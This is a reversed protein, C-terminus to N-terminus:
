SSASAGDTKKRIVPNTLFMSNPIFVTDGEKTQVVTTRVSIKQVTGEFSQVKIEDGISFARDAQVLLGSVFNQIVTSMAFSIAISFAGLGVIVSTLDFGSIAITALLGAAYIVYKSARVVWREIAEPFPTKEFVKALTRSVIRAVVYTAALAIIVEVVQMLDVDAIQLELMEVVANRLCEFM